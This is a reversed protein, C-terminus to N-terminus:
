GGQSGSCIYFVTFVVDKRPLEVDYVTNGWFCGPDASEAFAQVTYAGRPASIIARGDSGLSTELIVENDQYLTITGGTLDGSVLHDGTEQDDAVIVLISTETNRSGCGTLAWAIAIFALLLPAGDRPSRLM